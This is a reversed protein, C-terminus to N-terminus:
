FKKPFEPVFGVFGILLADSMRMHSPVVKKEPFIQLFQVALYGKETLVYKGSEDKQILDALIKLHYNFKGTNSVETIGMLDTYSLISTQNLAQIIKHRIPHKLVDQFSEIDVAM